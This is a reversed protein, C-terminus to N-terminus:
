KGSLIESMTANNPASISVNLTTMADASGSCRM